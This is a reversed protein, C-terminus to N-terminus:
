NFLFFLFVILIGMNVFKGKQGNLIVQAQEILRPLGEDVGRVILSYKTKKFKIIPFGFSFVSKKKKKLCLRM